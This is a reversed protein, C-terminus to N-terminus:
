THYSAGTFRIQMYRYTTNTLTGTISIKNKGTTISFEALNSINFQITNTATYSTSSFFFLKLILYLTATQTTIPFDININSPVTGNLKAFIISPNDRDLSLGLLPSTDTEANFFEAYTDIGTVSTNTSGPRFFIPFNIGGLQSNINHFNDIYLFNISYDLRKLQRPYEDSTVIDRNPTNRMISKLENFTMNNPLTLMKTDSNYTVIIPSTDIAAEEALQAAANAAAAAQNCNNIAPETLDALKPAILNLLSGDAVMADIKKSVEGDIDLNELYTECYTKLDNFQTTLTTQYSNWDNTLNTKYSTWEASIANFKNTLDTNYSNFLEEWHAIERDFDAQWDAQNQDFMEQWKNQVNAFKTDWEALTDTFKQEWELVKEGVYKKLDAFNREAQEVRECYEKVTAIIWDLNLEHPNTYPWFHFM